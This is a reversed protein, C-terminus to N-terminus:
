NGLGIEIWDHQCDPHVGHIKVRCSSPDFSSSHQPHPSPKGYQVQSKGILELGWFQTCDDLYIVGKGTKKM